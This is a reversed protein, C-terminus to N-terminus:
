DKAAAKKAAKKKPAPAKDEDEDIPERLIRGGVIRVRLLRGRGSERVVREGSM